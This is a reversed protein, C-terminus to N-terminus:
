NELIILNDAFRLKLSSSTAFELTLDFKLLGKGSNVGHHIGIIKRKHIQQLQEFFGDVKDCIVLPTSTLEDAPSYSNSIFHERFLQHRRSLQEEVYPEIIKSCQTEQRIFSVMKRMQRDSLNADQQFELLSQISIVSPPTNSVRQYQSSSRVRPTTDSYVSDADARFPKTCRSKPSINLLRKPTPPLNEKEYIFTKKIKHRKTLNSLSNSRRRKVNSRLSRSTSNGNLSHIARNRLKASITPAPRAPPM